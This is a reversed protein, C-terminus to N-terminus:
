EEKRKQISMGSLSRYVAATYYAKESTTGTVPRFGTLVAVMVM